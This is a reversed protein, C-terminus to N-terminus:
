IEGQGCPNPTLATRTNFMAAFIEAQLEDDFSTRCRLQCLREQGANLMNDTVDDATIEGVEDESSMAAIAASLDNKTVSIRGESTEGHKDRLRLWVREIETGRDTMPQGTGPIPPRTNLRKIAKIADDLYSLASLGKAAVVNVRASKLDSIIEAKLEPSLTKSLTM